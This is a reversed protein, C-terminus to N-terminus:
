IGWTKDQAPKSPNAYPYRGALYDFMEADHTRMYQELAAIAQPLTKARRVLRRGNQDLAWFATRSRKVVYFGDGDACWQERESPRAKMWCWSLAPTSHDDYTPQERDEPSVENENM